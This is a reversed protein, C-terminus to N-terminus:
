QRAQVKTKAPVGHWPFQPGVTPVSGAELAPRAHLQQEAQPSRAPLSLREAPHLEMSEMSGHALLLAPRPALSGEGADGTSGIATGPHSPAVRM